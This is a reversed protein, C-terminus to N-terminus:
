WHSVSSTGVLEEDSRGACGPGPRAQGTVASANAPRVLAACIGNWVHSRPAMTAGSAWTPAAASRSWPSPPRRRQQHLQRGHQMAHRRSRRDHDHEHAAERERQAREHGDRLRVGLAHQRVGGDRVQAQDRGARAHARASATQAAHRGRATGRWRSTAATGTRRCRRAGCRCGRCRPWPGTQELAHRAQGAEHHQADQAHEDRGNPMSSALHAVSTDKASVPWTASM